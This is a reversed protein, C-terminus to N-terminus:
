FSVFRSPCRMARPEATQDDVENGPEKAYLFSGTKVLNDSKEDIIEWRFDQSEGTKIFPVSLEDLTSVSLNCFCFLFPWYYVIYLKFYFPVIVCACYFHFYIFKVQAQWMYILCLHCYIVGMYSRFYSLLIVDNIQASTMTQPQRWPAHREEMSIISM